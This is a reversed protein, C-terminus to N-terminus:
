NTLKKRFFFWYGFLLIAIALGISAVLVIKWTNIQNKKETEPLRKQNEESIPLNVKEKDSDKKFIENSGESPVRAQKEFIEGQPKTSTMATELLSKSETSPVCVSGKLDLDKLEDEMLCILIKKMRKEFSDNMNINFEKHKTDLAISFLVLFKGDAFYQVYVATQLFNLTKPIIKSILPDGNTDKECVINKVIIDHKLFRLYEKQLRNEIDIEEFETNNRKLIAIFFIIELIIRQLKMDSSFEHKFCLCKLCIVIPIFNYIEPKIIKKLFCYLNKLMNINTKEAFLELFIQPFKEDVLTSTNSFDKRSLGFVCELSKKDMLVGNIFPELVLKMLEAASNQNVMASYKKRFWEETLFTEDLFKQDIILKYPNIKPDVDWLATINILAVDTKIKLFFIFIREFSANQLYESLRFSVPNHIDLNIQINEWIDVDLRSNQTCSRKINLTLEPLMKKISDIDSELGRYKLLSMFEPKNILFDLTLNVLFSEHNQVQNLYKYLKLFTSVNFFLEPNCQFYHIADSIFIIYFISSVFLLLYDYDSKGNYNESLEMCFCIISSIEVLKEKSIRFDIKKLYNEVYSNSRRLCILDIHTNEAITPDTLLIESNEQLSCLCFIIHFFM